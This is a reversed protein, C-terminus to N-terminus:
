FLIILNQYSKLKKDVEIKNKFYDGMNENIFNPFNVVGVRLSNDKSVLENLLTVALYTKGRRPQGYM